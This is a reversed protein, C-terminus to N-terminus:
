LAVGDESTMVFTKAVLLSQLSIQFRTSPELLDVAVVVSSSSTMTRIFVIMMLNDRSLEADVVSSWGGDYAATNDCAEM